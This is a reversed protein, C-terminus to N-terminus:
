HLLINVFCRFSFRSCDSLSGASPLLKIKVVLATFLFGPLFPELVVAGIGWLPRTLSKLESWHMSKITWDCEKNHEVHFCLSCCLILLATNYTLLPVWLQWLHSQIHILTPISVCVWVYIHTNRPLSPLSQGRLIQNIWIVVSKLRLKYLCSKIYPGLTFRQPNAM